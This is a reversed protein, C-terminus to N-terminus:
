KKKAKKTKPKEFLTFDDPLHGSDVLLIVVLEENTKVDFEARASKLATAIADHKAVPISLILPQLALEDLKKQRAKKTQATEEKKGSKTDKKKGKTKAKGEITITENKDQWEARAKIADAEAVSYGTGDLSGGRSRIRDLLADIKGEDYTAEDGAKNDAAMFEDAIDDPIDAILAPAEELGLSKAAKVAGNGAVIYGTSEQVVIPRLFGNRRISAKIKKQNSKRANDPHHEVDDLSVITFEQEWTPVTEKVKTKVKAKAM